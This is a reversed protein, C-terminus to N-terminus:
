LAKLNGLNFIAKGFIETECDVLGITSNRSDMSNNRNDGMVFIKGEPIVIDVNNKEEINMTEKIYNEELLKGNVFVKDGDIVLHDGATAIVRKVFFKAKLDQREVVVIDKYEVDTTYRILLMQGDKLTTDMSSGDVTSMAFNNLILITVIVTFLSLWVWEKINKKIEERM